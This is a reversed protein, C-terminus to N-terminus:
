HQLGRSSDQDKSWKLMTEKSGSCEETKTKDQEQIYRDQHSEGFWSLQKLDLRMM